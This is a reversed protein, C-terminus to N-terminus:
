GRGGWAVAATPPLRTDPVTRRGTRSSTRRGQRQQGCSSETCTTARWATMPLPISGVTTCALGTRVQQYRSERQTPSTTMVVLLSSGDLRVQDWDTIDDNPASDTVEVVVPVDMNRVTGVGITGPAVALSRDVAEETWSDGLNGQVREDQLYFQYYDAFLECKHTRKLQRQPHRVHLNLRAWADIAHRRSCGNNPVHDTIRNMTERNTIGAARRLGRAHGNAVAREWNGAARREGHRRTWEVSRQNPPLDSGAETAAKAPWERAPWM